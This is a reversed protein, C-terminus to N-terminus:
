IWCMWDGMTSIRRLWVRCPAGGRRFAQAMCDADGILVLRGMQRIAPDAWAKTVIEPGAGSPDGMTVGLIPREEM